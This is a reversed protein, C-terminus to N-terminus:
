VNFFKKKKQVLFSKNLILIVGGNVLNAMTPEIDTDFPKIKEPSIRTSLWNTVKKHSDLVLSSLMPSFILFNHYSGNGRVYIGGLM